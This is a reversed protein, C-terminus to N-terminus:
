LMHKKQSCYEIKIQIKESAQTFQLEKQREEPTQKADKSGLMM